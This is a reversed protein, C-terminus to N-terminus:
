DPLAYLSQAKSREHLSELFPFLKELAKGRHSIRNKISDGMEAFTKDYDQKTFIADYGFGNRGREETIITGYSTGSSTKKQGEPTIIAMSCEFYASREHGQIHKLNDLLKKRNEADTADEGAYTKSLPGPANGLSPVVLITEDAIVIRNLAKSAEEAKKLAREATTGGMPKSAKYEPFNILCLIDLFPFTKLIDRYERVKHLNATAIVIEV